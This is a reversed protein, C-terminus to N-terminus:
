YHWEVTYTVEASGGPPVQLEFQIRQADLVEYPASAEEIKWTGSLRALVEVTVAVEKASRLTVRYTDRYLDDSPRERRVHVREGTVDFAAGVDLEVSEGAPTHGINASGVYARGEEDLVRVQGAPLPDDAVDFGILVRVPGDTFRYVREYPTEVTVLPVFVTGEELAVVHPLSYRHYEFAQEVQPMTGAALDLGAVERFAVQTAEPAGVDGAVLQVRVDHYSRGSQNDLRAQGYLSLVDGRLVAAYVASWRMRYALYRVLVESQGPAAVYDVEVRAGEVPAAVIRDYSRLAVQGRDTLLLLGEAVALLRGRLVEGGAYVEVHRGVLEELYRPLEFGHSVSDEEPPLPRMAVVTLGELLLSDVLVTQPLGLLTLTGQDQLEVVRREQVFAFGQNYLVVETSSWAVVSTVAAVLVCIVTRM